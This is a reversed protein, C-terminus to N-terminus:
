SKFKLSDRMFEAGCQEDCFVTDNATVKTQNNRKWDNDDASAVHIAELVTVLVYRDTSSILKQCHGCKYATIPTPM